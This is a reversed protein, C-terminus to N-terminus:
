STVCVHLKGEKKMCCHLYDWHNSLRWLLILGTVAVDVIPSVAPYLKAYTRKQELCTNGEEWRWLGKDCSGFANIAMRTEEM